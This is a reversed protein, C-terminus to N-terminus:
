GARLHRGNVGSALVAVVVPLRLLFFLCRALLRSSGSGTGGYHTSVGSGLGIGRRHRVCVPLAERQYCSWVRRSISVYLRRLLRRLRRAAARRVVRALHSMSMCSALMGFTSRPRYPATGLRLGCPRRFDRLRAVRLRAHCGVVIVIALRVLRSRLLRVARGLRVLGM